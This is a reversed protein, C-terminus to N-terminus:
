SRSRLALLDAWHSRHSGDIRLFRRPRLRGSIAAAAHRRPPSAASFGKEIARDIVQLVELGAKRAERQSPIPHETFSRRVHLLVFPGQAVAEEASSWAMAYLVAAIRSRRSSSKRSETQRRGTKHDTM